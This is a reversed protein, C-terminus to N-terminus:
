RTRAPALRYIEEATRGDIWSTEDRSLAGTRARYSSIVEAYTAPRASIPWDSGFMSRRAGFSDLVFQLSDAIVSAEAARDGGRSEVASGLWVRGSLKVGVNDRSALRELDARWPMWEERRLPPSALHDVVVGLAPLLEAARTADPLDAAALLVELVLGRDALATLGRLVEDRGLWRRGTQPGLSVRVGVLREGGPSGLLSELDHSVSASALDVWGVVGLVEAPASCVALLRRTEELSESATVVLAGDVDTGEWSPGLDGPEFSRHLDGRPESSLWPPPADISWLHLHSDIMANRPATLPVAPRPPRAM